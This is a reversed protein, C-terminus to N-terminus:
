TCIVPLINRGLMIRFYIASLVSRFHYVLYTFIHQCKSDITKKIILKNKYFTQNRAIINVGCPIAVFEVVAMIGDLNQCFTM